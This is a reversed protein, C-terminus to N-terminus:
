DKYYPEYKGNLKRVIVGADNFRSIGNQRLNKFGDKSLRIAMFANSPYVAARVIYDIEFIDNLEKDTVTDDVRFRIVFKIFGVEVDNKVFYAYIKRM